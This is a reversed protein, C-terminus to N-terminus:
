RITSPGSFKFTKLAGGLGWPLPCQRGLLAPTGAQLRVSRRGHEIVVTVKAAQSQGLELIGDQTRHRRVLPSSEDLGTSIFISFLM